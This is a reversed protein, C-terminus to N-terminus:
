ILQFFLFATLFGFLMFTVTAVASRTSLRSLGCVAHGSTCGSAMRTGYGVLLGAVILTTYNADIQSNPVIAFLGYVFGSSLLGILFSLRWRFHNAPTNTFQMLSGLIGSIGAIRGKFLILLAAALGILVGGLLSQWPTFQIFDIHLSM